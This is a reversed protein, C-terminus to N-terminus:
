PLAPTRILLARPSRPLRSAQEFSKTAPSRWTTPPLRGPWTSRPLLSQRLRFIPPFLPPPPTPPNGDRSPSPAGVAPSPSPPATQSPDLRAAPRFPFRGVIPPRLSHPLSWQSPAM